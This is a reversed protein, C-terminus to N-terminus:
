YIKPGYHIDLTTDIETGRSLSNLLPAPFLEFCVGEGKEYM